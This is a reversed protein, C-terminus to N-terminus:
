LIPFLVSEEVHTVATGPVFSAEAPSSTSKLTSSGHTQCWGRWPKKDGRRKEQSLEKVSREKNRTIKLPISTPARKKSLETHSKHSLGFPHTCFARELERKPAFDCNEQMKGSVNFNVPDSEGEISIGATLFQTHTLGLTPLAPPM